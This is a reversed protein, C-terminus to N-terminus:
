LIMQGLVFHHWAQCPQFEGTSVTALDGDAAPAPVSFFPSPPLSLAAPSRSPGLNVDADDDDGIRCMQKLLPLCSLIVYFHVRFTGNFTLLPGSAYPYSSLYLEIKSLPPGYAM